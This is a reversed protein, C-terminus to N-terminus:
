AIRAKPRGLWTVVAAMMLVMIFTLTALANIEPTLGSRMRGFIMVPLTQDYGGLFFSRLFDDFSNLASLLAAGALSPYLWPLQVHLFARVPGAGLDYAAEM